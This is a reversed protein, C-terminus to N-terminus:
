VVTGSCSTSTLALGLVLAGLVLGVSPSVEAGLPVSWVSFCYGSTIACLMNASAVARPFAMTIASAAFEPGAGSGLSSASSSSTTSTRPWGCSLRCCTHTASASHGIPQEHPFGLPRLSWSLQILPSIVPSPLGPISQKVVQDQQRTM